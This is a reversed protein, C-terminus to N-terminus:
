DEKTRYEIKGCESCERQEFVDYSESDHWEGYKHGLPNSYSILRTEGCDQCVESVRGHGECTPDVIEEVFNHQDSVRYEIYTCNKCTRKDQGDAECTSAVVVEWENFDHRPNVKNKEEVHGCQACTYTTYGYDECTPPTVVTGEAYDHKYDTDKLEYADCNRCDRRKVGMTNCDAVIYNEDWNDWAHGKAKVPSDTYYADCFECTHITYGEDLCTPAVKEVITYSHDSLKETFSDHKVYGCDSCVHETYGGESCTPVHVTSVFLHGDPNNPDVPEVLPEEEQECAVLTLAVIVLSAILLALFFKKMKEEEMFFYQILFLDENEFIGM